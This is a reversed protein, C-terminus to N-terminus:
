TRKAKKDPPQETREPPNAKYYSPSKQYLMHLEYAQKIYVEKQKRRLRALESNILPWSCVFGEEELQEHIQTNTLKQKEGNGLRRKKKEEEELIEVLRAGLEPTFVRRVGQRKPYKPEETMKAQITKLDAEPEVLQASLACYEDWVRRITKRDHGTQRSIEHNSLKAQKMGIIRGKDMSCLM